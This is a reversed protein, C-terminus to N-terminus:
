IKILNSIENKLSKILFFNTVGVKNVFVYNNQELLKFIESQFYEEPIMENNEITILKPKYKKFNIGKIVNLETGEVDVNLYDFDHFDNNELVTNLTYCNIDVKIQDDSSKQLSNQQNIMGNQFYFTKENFDSIACNLNIDRKRAINFLDISTKSVDINIGRWNKQYLKATLSGKFPHYCGVDVYKGNNISKLLRGIFVDEAFEGFHYSPKRNRQIKLLKYFFYFIKNKLLNKKM